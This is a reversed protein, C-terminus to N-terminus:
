ETGYVNNQFTGRKLQKILMRLTSPTIAEGLIKQGSEAYLAALNNQHAESWEAYTLLGELVDLREVYDYNRRHIPTGNKILPLNSMTNSYRELLWKLKDANLLDVIPAADRYHATYSDPSTNWAYTTHDAYPEPPGENLYYLNWQHNKSWVRDRKKPKHKPHEEQGLRMAPTIKYSNEQLPQIYTSVKEPPILEEFVHRSLENQVVSDFDRMYGAPFKETEVPHIHTRTMQEMPVLMDGTACMVLVPNAIRSLFSIPSVRYWANDALNSTFHQYCLEALQLVAAM